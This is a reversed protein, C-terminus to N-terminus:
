KKNQTKSENECHVLYNEVQEKEIIEYSQVDEIRIGYEKTSLRFSIEGKKNYHAGQVPNLCLFGDERM